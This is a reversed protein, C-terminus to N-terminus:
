LLGTKRLCSHCPADAAGTKPVTGINTETGVNPNPNAAEVESCESRERKGANFGSTTGGQKKKNNTIAKQPAEVHLDDAAERVNSQARTNQEASPLDCESANEAEPRAYRHLLILCQGACQLVSVNDACVSIHLVHKHFPNSLLQLPSSFHSTWGSFSVVSLCLKYMIVDIRENDDERIRKGM